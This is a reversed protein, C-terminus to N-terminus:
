FLGLPMDPYEQAAQTSTPTDGYSPKTHILLSHTQFHDCIQFNIQNLMNTNSKSHLCISFCFTFNRWANFSISFVNPIFGLSCLHFIMLITLLMPLSHLYSSDSRGIYIFNYFSVPYPYFLMDFEVTTDANNDQPVAKAKGKSTSLM